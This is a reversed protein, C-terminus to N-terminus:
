SSNIPIGYFVTKKHLYVGLMSAIRILEVSFSTCLINKSGPFAYNVNKKTLKSSLKFLFALIILTM